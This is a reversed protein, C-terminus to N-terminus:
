RAATSRGASRCQYLAPYRVLVPIHHPTDRGLVAVTDSQQDVSDTPPETYCRRETLAEPAMSSASTPRVNRWYTATIWRTTTDVECGAYDITFGDDTSNM